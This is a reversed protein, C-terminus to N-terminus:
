TTVASTYTASGPWCGDGGFFGAAGPRLEDLQAKDWIENLVPRQIEADPGGQAIGGRLIIGAGSESTAIDSKQSKWSPILESKAHIADASNWHCGAHGTNRRHDLDRDVDFQQRCSAVRHSPM